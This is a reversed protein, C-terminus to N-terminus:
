YDVSWDALSAPQEGRQLRKLNEAFCEAIERPRSIGALHPTVVVDPRGWFPHESPLPEESFVDLVAGDLWHADLAWLLSQDSIINGRGINILM